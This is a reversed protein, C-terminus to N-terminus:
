PVEPMPAKQFEAALKDFLEAVDRQAGELEKLEDLEDETLKDRDPHDKAFAATRENVEAQMARLAKLQALPPIGPGQQGGNGMDGDGGPQGQGQGSNAAQQKKPDEKLTDLIQDLRRLATAMPRAVRDGNLKETEPDFPDGGLLDERRQGAYKAARAMADASQTSLRHFVPLDTLNKEAYQRLEDSLTKERDELDRLSNLLPKNWGKAKLAEAQLRAAEDIAAKQKERVTKLQDLLQERKERSLQEQDQKQERDLKDLADKLRDLAEGQKEDPSRGQQLDERAAAMQEAARRVDDASKDAKDRTLRQAIEEAKKELKEQERALKNMEEARKGADPVAEAQKAKKRLEDQDAGLKDLEDADRDRKKRLEDPTEGPKENLAGALKDLKQAAAQRNAASEGPRNNRLDRAAQRVDQPIDDGGSERVANRLAEAEAQARDAAARLNAAEAKAANSRARAADAEKSGPPNARASSDNMAAEREKEGAQARLARAQAEKEDAIRTAKSVLAAAADAAEDLKGAPANLEAKEDPKLQGADKGPPVKEAAKNAQVGAQNLKDKLVQADGRIEGPGGWQELRELLNTLGEEAAKQHKGAKNLLEGVKKPDPNPMGNPGPKEAEQRAAGLLPEAAELDQDALRNLADAVAEVKETTPSRPLNNARATERLQDAKARLGADPDAVKNRVTRQSQEAQALNGLDEPKLKGDAAAKATETTKERAQKQEEKLRLLDPRLASLEKQFLAELSSKGLVRLEVEKSRGPEKLATRTDWDAAAARLTITDGDAPPAGDPRRFRAVPITRAGDMTVPKQRVAFSGAAAPVGPWATELDALPLVRVPGDNVRYELVLSKVAFPRDEARASVAVAATPLLTLPDKGPVPRELVVVPSPDPFLRFDFLRVGTLGVEDTLRLAYLGPLHPTFEAELLNGEPGSVRVPVDALVEDALMRAALPPLPHDGVVATAALAQAVPTLDSMNHFSAAAIRRDAAARFHVRTGGVAEIVGTGDPLEAPRLDTYEPYELRVQPSPRGDLPVLKPAPGVFVPLWGTDFDNATIRFEFDRPVRNADLRHEVTPEAAPPDGALSVADETMGAGPVRVAVTAKEPVVGRVTFKVTFPDGKALLFRGNPRATPELLEVTTKTPWPHTGFADALRVVALRARATNLAGLPVAVAVALAALWFAKWARGTPVIVDLDYRKTLNEARTVAVKRFRSGGDPDAELFDVASALADNLRPFRDELALAVALPRVSQRAPRRVWRLYGAGVGAIIAVLLMARVVAPLHVAADLACSVTVAAVAAAVVRLAGAAVATRRRARGLQGLRDPLPRLEDTPPRLVLPM